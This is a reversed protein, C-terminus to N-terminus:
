QLAEIFSTDRWYLISPGDMYLLYQRDPTIIPSICNTVNEVKQPESWGAETAYSIYLYAPSNNDALRSFLIYSEDPAINPTFEITDTNIPADLLVPEQYNGNVYRSLYIDAKGRDEASFYLNLNNAVSVTWHLKLANVVDPLPQPEGWDDGQKEMMWINEKGGSSEGPLAATTIFYFKSGDPSIFPDRYSKIEDSFEIKGPKSWHGDVVQSTYITASSFSGAWWATNGDPSFVPSSHYSGNLFGKGFQVPEDGPLPEGFYSGSRKTSPDPALTPTAVPAPSTCASLILTLILVSWTIKM